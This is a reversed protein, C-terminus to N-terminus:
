GSLQDILARAEKLDATDFGEIFWTYIETLMSHAENRRGQKALLRALSTTARLQWAKAQQNTATAIATEFCVHAEREFTSNRKLLAEGRLRYLEANSLRAGTRCTNALAQAVTTLVEESRDAKLYSSALGVMILAAGLESGTARYSGVGDLIASIGEDHRAMDALAIGRYTSALASWYQFGRDSALSCAEEAIELAGTAERRCLQLLSRYTLAVALSLPHGLRRALSLAEGSADLARDPYGSLWLALALFSLSTVGPDQPAQRLPQQQYIKRAHEFKEVAAPIEGRFLFVAGRAYDGHAIMFPDGARNALELLRDASQAATELDRRMQHFAWDFMLAPFQLEPENLRDSLEVTIRNLSEVEPSGYGRSAGLSGLLALRLELEMEMRARNEPLQILLELASNFFEAAEKHACRQAASEGALRMFRIAKEVDGSLRYHRALEALYDNLRGHFLGEISNAIREHLLKRREGLISNYAVEQTLAHKFAYEVDGTAPQEYIFEAGQLNDLKQQLQADPKSVTREILGLKFEKGIAALTQILEKEEPPLRDIRSTLIAQV